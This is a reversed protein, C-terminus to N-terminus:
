NFFALAGQTIAEATLNPDLEMKFKLQVGTLGDIDVEVPDEDLVLRPIWLAMKNNTSATQGPSGVNFVMFFGYPTKNTRATYYSAANKTLTMTVGEPCWLRPKYGVIPSGPILNSTNGRVAERPVWDWCLNVQLSNLDIQTGAAPTGTDQLFCDAAYGLFQTSIAAPDVTNSASNNTFDAATFTWNLMLRNSLDLNLECRTPVCGTFTQPVFDSEGDADCEIHLTKGAAVTYDQIFCAGNTDGAVAVATTTGGPLIAYTATDGSVSKIPRPVEVGSITTLIIPDFVEGADATVTTTTASVFSVTNASLTGFASTLPHILESWTNAQVPVSFSIEGSKRGLHSAHQGKALLLHRNDELPERTATYSLDEVGAVHDYSAGDTYISSEASITVRRILGLAGESM